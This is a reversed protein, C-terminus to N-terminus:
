RVVRQAMELLQSQGVGSEVRQLENGDPDLFLLTPYISINYSLRLLKGNPDSDADAKYAIFHKNFYDAVSPDTFVNEEMLKCPACWTAGFILFIPKNLARSKSLIQEFLIPTEFRIGVKEVIVPTTGVQPSRCAAIFCLAILLTIFQKIM